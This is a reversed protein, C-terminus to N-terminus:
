LEGGARTARYNAGRSTGHIVTGYGILGLSFADSMRERYGLFPEAAHDDNRSSTRAGAIMGHTGLWHDPEVLALLQGSAQGKHGPDQTAASPYYGPAFGGQLEVGPRGNPVAAVGTTAPMPGLTTCATTSLAIALWRLHKM